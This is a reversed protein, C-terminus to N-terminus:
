LSTDMLLQAFIGLPIVLGVGVWGDCQTGRM